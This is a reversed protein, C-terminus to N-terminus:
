DEDEEPVDAAVHHEFSFSSATAGANTPSVGDSVQDWSSTYDDATAAGTLEVSLTESGDHNEGALEEGVRSLEDIHNVQVAYTASRLDVVAGTTLKFAAGFDAPCGFATVPIAALSPTYTRCSSDAHNNADHKHCNVTLKPALQARDWTCSFGDIHWGNVVNGVKPFTLVTVATAPQKFIYVFSTTSKGDHLASRLEDGDKAPEAARTKSHQIAGGDQYTWEASLGLEPDVPAFLDITGHAM